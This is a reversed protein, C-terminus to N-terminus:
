LPYPTPYVTYWIFCLMRGKVRTLGLEDGALGQDDQDRVGADPSVQNEISSFGVVLPALSALTWPPHRRFDRARTSLARYKQHSPFPEGSAIM